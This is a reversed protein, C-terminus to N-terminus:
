ELMKGISTSTITSYIGARFVWFRKEVQEIPNVLLTKLNTNVNKQSNQYFEDRLYAKKADRSMNNIQNVKLQARIKGIGYGAGNAVAGKLASKGLDLVNSIEGRILDGAINGAAGVALAGILGGGPIAAIAGSVGSALYDKVSSTPQFVNEEEAKINGVIDSVYQAIISAVFGIAICTLWCEGGSDVRCIPNNDCYAYLNKDTLGM